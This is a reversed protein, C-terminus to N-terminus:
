RLTVRSYILKLDVSTAVRNTLVTTSTSHIFIIGAEFTKASCTISTYVARNIVLAVDALIACGTYEIHRFIHGTTKAANSVFSAM